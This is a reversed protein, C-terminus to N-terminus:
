EVEAPVVEDSMMWWARDEIHDNDFRILYKIAYEDTQREVVKGTAGSVFFEREDVFPRDDGPQYTYTTVVECSGERGYEAGDATLSVRDGVSFKASM